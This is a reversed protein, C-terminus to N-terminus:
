KYFLFTMLTLSLFAFLRYSNFDSKNSVNNVINLKLDNKRLKYKELTKKITEEMSKNCYDRLSKKMIIPKQTILSIM